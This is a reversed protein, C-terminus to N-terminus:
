PTPSEAPEPRDSGPAREGAYDFIGPEVETWGEGLYRELWVSRQKAVAERRPVTSQLPPRSDDKKSM